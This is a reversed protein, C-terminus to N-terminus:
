KSGFRSPGCRGARTDCHPDDRHGEKSCCSSGHCAISHRRAQADGDEKALTPLREVYGDAYRYVIDFNSGEVYGLKRMGLFFADVFGLSAARTGGSLFAILPRRHSVQARAALPWGAAAGGLLAIFERRKM